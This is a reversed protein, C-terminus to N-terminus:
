LQCFVVNALYNQFYKDYIRVAPIHPLEKALLKSFQEKNLKEDDEKYKNFTEVLLCLSMELTTEM